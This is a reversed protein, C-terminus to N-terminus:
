GCAFRVVKHLLEVVGVSTNGTGDVTPSILGGDTCKAAAIADLMRTEMATDHMLEPKGLIIAISAAIGYAGLNSTNAVVLVDSKTVCAIGDGCDCQCVAGYPVIARAQALINGMGIENGGDGVAVTALGRDIAAQAVAELNGESLIPTGIAYHHRGKANGGIREISAVAVPRHQDLLREAERRSADLPAIPFPVILVTHIKRAFLEPDRVAMLGAAECAGAFGETVQDECLVVPKAGVGLVLARALSAVGPPGDTEGFPLQYPDYVGSVLFVRADKRAVDLLRRAAAMPMPESVIAAGAAHLRALTDPPAHPRKPRIAASVLSDIVHGYTAEVPTAM